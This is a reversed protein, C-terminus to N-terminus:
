YYQDLDKRFNLMEKGVIEASSYSQRAEIKLTTMDEEM